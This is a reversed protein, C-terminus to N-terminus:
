AHRIYEKLAAIRDPFTKDKFRKSYERFKEGALLKKIKEESFRMGEIAETQKLEPHYYLMDLVAKEPTAIKYINGNTRVPEYGFFLRPLISRYRFSGVPTQFLYSKLTTVSTMQYSGEPIMGHYALATECSIYSPSYIRNAVEFLTEEGRINEPFLYFGRTIKKIYGKNQWENLRPRYFNNDINKIENLTFVTVNKFTNYLDLYRM